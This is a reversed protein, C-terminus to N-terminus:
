TQFLYLKWLFDVCLVERLTKLQGPRTPRGTIGSARSPLPPSVLDESVPPGVTSFVGLQSQVLALTFDARHIRYAQRFNLRGRPGAVSSALPFAPMGDPKRRTHSLRQLAVRVRDALPQSGKPSAPQISQDELLTAAGM